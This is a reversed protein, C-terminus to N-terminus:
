SSSCHGRARATDYRKVGPRELVQVAFTTVYEVGLVTLIALLAHRLTASRPSARQEPACSLSRSVPKSLPPPSGQSSHCRSSGASLAQPLWPAYAHLIPHRRRFRRHTQCEQPWTLCLRLPCCYRQFCSGQFLMSLPGDYLPYISSGASSSSCLRSRPPRPRVKGRWALTMKPERYQRPVM